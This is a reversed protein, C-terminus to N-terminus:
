TGPASRSRRHTLLLVVGVGAQPLAVIGYLLSVAVAVPAAVGFPALSLVAAAERTGWGGFSVPLAAMLFIPAATILYVWFPVHQGLAQAGCALAAVSLLQVVASALIQGGLEWGTGPRHVMASLREVLRWRPLRRVLVVMAVPALLLVAAAAIPVWAGFGAVGWSALAADGGVDGGLRGDRRLAGLADVLREASGLAGFCRVAM